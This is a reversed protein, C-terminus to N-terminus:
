DFRRLHLRIGLGIKEVSVLFARGQAKNCSSLSCRDRRDRAVDIAHISSNFGSRITPAEPNLHDKRTVHFRQDRALPNNGLKKTSACAHPNRSKEEESHRKRRSGGRRDEKNRRGINASEEKRRRRKEEERRRKKKRRKSM